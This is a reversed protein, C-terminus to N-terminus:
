PLKKLQIAGANGSRQQPQALQQLQAEPISFAVTVTSGSAAISLSKALAAVDPSKQAQLQAMNALMQLLGALTTANQPTDLLAQATVTVNDGFKVALSSQQIQQLAELNLGPVTPAASPPHLGALPVTSLVWADGSGSLQGIRAVVAASLHQADPSQRDIAAKVSALDGFVALTSDLFALAQIGNPAKLIAINQYTETAAGAQKAAATITEIAFTGRALALGAASGAGGNSAALLESVDQRPDFGTVAVLAQLEQSHPAILTMVYQGFPSAKAQTVNVGAIVAADPMVLSVLQPDAAPLVAAFLMALPVANRLTRNM